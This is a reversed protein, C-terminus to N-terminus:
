GCSQEAFAALYPLPPCVLESFGEGSPLGDIIGAVLDASAARRSNMKRNGAILFERM